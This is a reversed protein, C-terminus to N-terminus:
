EQVGSLTQKIYLTDSIRDNYLEIRGKYGLAKVQRNSLSRYTGVTDVVARENIKTIQGSAGRKETKPYTVKVTVKDGDMAFKTDNKGIYIDNTKDTADEPHVFGFGKPHKSFVGKSETQNLASALESLQVM